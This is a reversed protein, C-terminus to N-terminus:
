KTEELTANATNYAALSKDGADTGEGLRANMALPHLLAELTTRLKRNKEQLASHANFRDVMDDALQLSRAVADKFGFNRFCDRVEAVLVHQGNQMAWILLPVGDKRFLSLEEQKAGETESDRQTPNM